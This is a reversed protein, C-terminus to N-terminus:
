NSVFYCIDLKPQLNVSPGKTYFYHANIPAENLLFGDNERTGDLWKAVLSKVDASREGVGGANFSSFGNADCNALPYNALSVTAENWGVNCAHLEVLNFAANWAVTLRFTSSTVNVKQGAGLSNTISALDFRFLSYNQNGGSSVGTWAGFDPGAQYSPADGSLLADQAVGGNVGDTITVCSPACVGEDTSGNCNDDKFNCSEAANPHITPDNDNCDDNQNYGDNDNDPPACVPVNAVYDILGNCDNDIGDCIENAGPHVAANNDNCDGNCGTYGDGDKDVCCVNNEDAVGSCNDDLGNCVESAGPKIQPNNDNCDTCANVGDGDADVAACNAANACGGCVPGNCSMAGAVVQLNNILAGSDLVQDYRDASRFQLTVNQNQYASVNFEVTRQNAIALASGSKNSFECSNQSGTSAVPQGAPNYLTASFPDEYPVYDWEYFRYDFTIKTAGAPVHVTVTAGGLDCLTGFVPDAQCAGGNAVSSSTSWNTADGGSVVMYCDGAGFSCSSAFGPQCPLATSTAAQGAAGFQTVSVINAAQNPGALCSQVSALTVAQQGYGPITAADIATRGTMEEKAEESSETQCGVAIAAVAASAGLVMMLKSSLKSWQRM